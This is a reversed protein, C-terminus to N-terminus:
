RVPRLLLTGERAHKVLNSTIEASVIALDAVRPEGLEVQRGLREAARRVSSAAAGSEVRFWLGHDAVVDGIM